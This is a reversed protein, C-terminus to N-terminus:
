GRGIRGRLISSQLMWLAAGSVIPVGLLLWINPRPNAESRLAKAPAAGPNVSAVISSDRSLSPVQAAEGNTEPEPEPIPAEFAAPVAGAATSVFVPRAVRPTDSSTAKEAPPVVSPFFLYARKVAQPDIKECEAILEKARPLPCARLYNVVPVRVWSLKEDASKFLEFVKDLATWDEWRALDPIVLDALQPRSLVARLPGVVQQPQLTVKEAAHMRLAMIAAYTDSYDCDQNALFLKEITALGQEGRISLYCFIIMDLGRRRERDASRMMEELLPVDKDGGVIGLMVFYLRRRTAPVSEDNLREVIEDRRLDDRLARVEAYPAKAFEDYADRALDSDPDELYGLVFRFREVGQEPLKQLKTLYDAMRDSCPRPLSWLMQPRAIGLILFQDGPRGGGLHLVELKEGVRVLREGKLVRVIEFRSPQVDAANGGEAPGAVLRAVVAADMAALEDCLTAGSPTCGPCARAAAPLSSALALVAAVFMGHRMHGIM